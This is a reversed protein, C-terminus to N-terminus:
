LFVDGNNDSTISSASVESSNSIKGDDSVTFGFLIKPFLFLILIFLKIM